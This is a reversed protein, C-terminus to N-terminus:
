EWVSPPVPVSAAPALTAVSVHPWSLGNFNLMVQQSYQIQTTTFTIPRPRPIPIPPHVLFTPALEEPVGNEPRLLMPEQGPQFVPVLITHKVTEIWFTATMEISQANQGAARPNGLAAADGLLFAINDTGGGFLPASPATSISIETTSTITQGAIHNRLITNPDDLIAQTITGASIFPTLDQPIRATGSAAATQSPFRIRGSPPPLPNGPAIAGFPTIDVPPITPPGAFTRWTGQANITTGHPISAMRALTPQEAPDTTPPVIVWLGPELHIGVSAGTTVDSIAQLYPVGNLFADAQVMGRNPVSGLSPSFSLSESTLNLELVNDGGAPIPLPTPTEPSDPRFITNFGTGVWNGVFAALPGLDPAAPPAGPLTPKPRVAGFRFTSPLSTAPALQVPADVIKTALRGEAIERAGTARVERMTTQEVDKETKSM